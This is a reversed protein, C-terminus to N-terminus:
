IGDSHKLSRFSVKFDMKLVGPEYFHLIFVVEESRMILHLCTIHQINGLDLVDLEFLHTM